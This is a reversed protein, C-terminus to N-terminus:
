ARRRDALEVRVYLMPSDTRFRVQVGSTHNALRDVEPRLPYDPRVPLRRYVGDQELWPLGTVSLPAELASLWQLDMAPAEGVRMYRDDHETGPMTSLREKSGM